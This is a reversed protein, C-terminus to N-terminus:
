KGPNEALHRTDNLVSITREGWANKTLRTVSCPDLEYSVRSWMAEPLQLWDSVLVIGTNAHTVILVVDHQDNGINDMFRRVRDVLMRWSEAQPYPAWDAIPSAVPCKVLEAEEKNLNAAVGNNLDRLEPTLIAEVLIHESISKATDAARSLDSAYFRCPRGNLLLKLYAGTKSAQEMGLETLRSSSWGGTTGDEIHEAHGHRVLILENVM